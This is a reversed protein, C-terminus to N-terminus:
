TAPPLEVNTDASKATTVSYSGTGDAQYVYASGDSQVVFVPGTIALGQGLATDSAQVTAQATALATTAQQLAVQADSLGKEDALAKTILDGITM